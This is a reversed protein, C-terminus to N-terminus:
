HLFNMLQNIFKDKAKDDNFIAFPCNINVYLIKINDILLTIDYSDGLFIITKTYSNRSLESITKVACKELIVSTADKRLGKCFCKISPTIYIRDLVDISYKEKYAEYIINTLKNFLKENISVYTPYVIMIDSCNYGIGGRICNEGNNYLKAPCNNCSFHNTTYDTMYKTYKISNNIKGM